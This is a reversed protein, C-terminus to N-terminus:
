SGAAALVVAVGAAVVVAGIARAVRAGIPSLREASIAATVIAMARLDMVGIVLLIAMLNACCRLCRIGIDLGYRWATRADAPLAGSAPADHCCALRRSKWASLQIAGAVLIVAGAAIPMARAIWPDDMAMAAIAAGAPFVVAGAVTWVAFYGAGVLATLGGLRIRNSTTVAHRYRSLMPVLVPLMMAAMMAIWMVLFACAAGPWTQAPARMWTMSMMWGGPMPMGSM